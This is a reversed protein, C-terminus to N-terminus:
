ENHQAPVLSKERLSARNKEKQDLSSNQITRFADSRTKMAALRSTEDVPYAAIFAKIDGPSLTSNQGVCCKSAAKCMWAPFSYEMISKSDYDGISYSESTESLARMNRDVTQKNWKNPPGGLFRYLGPHRGQPDAVFQKWQDKTAVYGADDEFRFEADCGGVPNQHEHEFGLAHGFEHLVVARWNTPLQKDFDQLSLSPENSRAVNPDISDAGVLSWYGADKFSIRIDAVYEKDTKSWERYKNTTPNFGFDFKLDSYPQSATLWQTAAEVIKARLDPSGGLFAVRLTSGPSWLGQQKLVSFVASGNTAPGALANEFKKRKADIKSSISAPLSEIIIPEQSDAAATSEPLAAALVGVWVLVCRWDKPMQGGPALRRYNRGATDLRGQPAIQQMEWSRAAHQGQRKSGALVRFSVVNIRFPHKEWHASRACRSSRCGCRSLLASAHARGTSGFTAILKAGQKRARRIRLRTALGWTRM